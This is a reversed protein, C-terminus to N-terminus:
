GASPSLGVGASGYWGRVCLRERSRVSASKDHPQPPEPVTQFSTQGPFVSADESDPNNCQSNDFLSKIQHLLSSSLLEMRDDMEKLMRDYHAEFRNDLDVNASTSPLSAPKKTVKSSKGRGKSKSALSKRIKEHNLMEEEKSRGECEECRLDVSCEYGRCRICILHKDCDISSMRTPCKACSCQHQGSSASSSGSSKPADQVSTVSDSFGPNDLSFEM